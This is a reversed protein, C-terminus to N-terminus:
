RGCHLTAHVPLVGPGDDYGPVWIGDTIMASAKAAMM